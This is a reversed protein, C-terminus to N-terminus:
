RGIHPYQIMTDSWANEQMRRAIDGMRIELESGLEDVSLNTGNIQIAGNEIVLHNDVNTTNHSQYNQQMSQMLDATSPTNVIPNEGFQVPPTWPLAAPMQFENFPTQYSLKPPQYAKFDPVWRNGPTGQEPGMIQDYLSAAGDKVRKLVPHNEWLWNIGQLGPHHDAYNQAADPLKEKVTALAKEPTINGKAIGRMWLAFDSTSKYAEGFSKVLSLAAPQLDKAFTNVANLAAQFNDELGQLSADNITSDITNQVRNLEAQSTQTSRALADKAQNSGIQLAKLVVDTGVLGKEMDARLQVMAAQGTKGSKKLEANAQAFLAPMTPDHEAAQGFLEESQVRGKSIMQIISTQLGKMRENSLHMTVAHENLQTWADQSQAYKLGAAHGGALMSAYGNVQDTARLGLRNSENWVYQNAAESREANIKPNPSTGVVNAILNRNSLQQANANFLASTARVGAYGVAAPALWRPVAALVAGGAASNAEVPQIGGAHVGPIRAVQRAAQSVPSREVVTKIKLSQASWEARRIASALSRNLKVNDINFREMKFETLKAVQNLSKQIDRQFALSNFKIKPSFQFSKDFQSKLKLMMAEMKAMAQEAQRFQTKNLRFGISSYFSSIETASM